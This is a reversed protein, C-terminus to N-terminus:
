TKGKLLKKAAKTPKFILSYPVNIDCQEGNKDFSGMDDFNLALINSNKMGAAEAGAEFRNNLIAVKISWTPEPLSTVFDLALLNSSASGDLSPMAFINAS